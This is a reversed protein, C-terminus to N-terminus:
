SLPVHHLCHGLAHQLSRGTCLSRRYQQSLSNVDLARQIGHGFRCRRPCRQGFDVNVLQCRDARHHAGQQWPLGLVRQRGHEGCAALAENHSRSSPSVGIGLADFYRARQLVHPHHRARHVGRIRGSGEGAVPGRRCGGGGM